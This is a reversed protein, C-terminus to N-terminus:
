LLCDAPVWRARRGLEDIQLEELVSVDIPETFLGGPGLDEGCATLPKSPMLTSAASTATSTAPKHM